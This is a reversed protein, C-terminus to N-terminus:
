VRIKRRLLGMMALSGCGLLVLSSPEPAAAVATGDIQFQLSRSGPLFGTASFFAAPVSLSGNEEWAVNILDVDTVLWYPTGSTLTLPSSPAGSTVLGSFPGFPTAAPITGTLETLETGPLGGSNSFISFNLTQPAGDFFNLIRAVVDTLQYNAGPTFQGAVVEGGDGFTSDSTLTTFVTDAHANPIEFFLAFVFSLVAVLHTFSRSM